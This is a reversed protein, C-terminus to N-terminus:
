KAEKPQEPSLNRIFLRAYTAQVRRGNLEYYIAKGDDKEVVPANGFTSGTRGNREGNQKYGIYKSYDKKINLSDDNVMASSVGLLEFQEPNYDSLFTIPVGMVGAYDCPINKVKSVEIANYNDFRPYEEPNYRKVLILNDHRKKLDLNTFWAIGPVYGHKKGNEDVYAKGKLEYDDSMLFEMTINFGMGSWLKNAQILPFIDAYKVANINGIVIFKKDYSILQAVYERFLSFPPNTVVVDVENLLEICELSRFDGDGSLEILENEGSKFLEAVDLMDVGGDGTKDYVKTIIAKYPHKVGDDSIEDGFSFTMQGNNDIHYKLQSGLIPSTAYCTAILKKLGLRNFNLVFYKFFNSEFPDDCNCLVVKNKFHQRYHRLEKEIDSLQTYFEDNKQLKAASLSSNKAM